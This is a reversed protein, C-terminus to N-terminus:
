GCQSQLFDRVLPRDFDGNSVTVVLDVVAEPSDDYPECLLSQDVASLSNWQRELEKREPGHATEARGARHATGAGTAAVSKVQERLRAEVEERDAERADAAEPPVTPTAVDVSLAQCREIIAQGDEMASTLRFAELKGQLESDLVYTAHAHARAVLDLTDIDSSTGLGTKARHVDAFWPSYIEAFKECPRVANTKAEEM